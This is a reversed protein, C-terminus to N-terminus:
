DRCATREDDDDDDDNDDDDDHSDNSQEHTKQRKSTSQLPIDSSDTADGSSEQFEDEAQTKENRVQKSTSAMHMDTKQKLRRAREVAKKISAGGPKGVSEYYKKLNEDLADCHKILFRVTAKFDRGYRRLGEMILSKEVPSSRIKREKAVANADKSKTAPEKNDFSETRSC